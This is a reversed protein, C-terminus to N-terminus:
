KSLFCNGGDSKIRACMANAADKDAFPGLRLRYWTGKEGLDAAKVDSSFGAILSEHKDQFASWSTDAEGRSKYSGIQLVYSGSAAEAGAETSTATAAPAMVKTPEGRAALKPAAAPKPAPKDLAVSKAPPHPQTAEAVPARLPPSAASPTQSQTQAPANNEVATGDYSENPASQEYIKLGKYKEQPGAEDAAVKAPGSEASITRPETRGSAVGKEYALWVVGGFSALVFLAIVILLPLRSGETDEEDESGDFVHVEDPPEYVGRQFNAM